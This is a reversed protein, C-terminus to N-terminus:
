PGTNTPIVGACTVETPRQRWCVEPLLSTCLGLGACVWAFMVQTIQHSHPPETMLFRADETHLYWYLPAVLYMVITVTSLARMIWTLIRNNSLRIRGVFTGSGAGMGFGALGSWLAGKTLLFCNVSMNKQTMVGLADRYGWALALLAAAASSLFFILTISKTNSAVKFEQVLLRLSFALAIAGLALYSGAIAFMAAPTGLPTCAGKIGLGCGELAPLEQGPVVANELSSTGSLVVYLYAAALLLFLAIPAAALSGFRLKVQRDISATQFTVALLLAGLVGAFGAGAPAATSPDWIPLHYADFMTWLGRKLKSLRPEGPPVEYLMRSCATPMAPSICVDFDREPERVM